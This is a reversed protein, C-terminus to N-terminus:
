LFSFRVTFTLLLLDEVKDSGDHNAQGLNACIDIMTAIVQAIRMTITSRTQFVVCTPVCTFVLSCLYFVLSCLHVCTLCLHVCTFVLPVCTFMLPVCTFVLPVCTHFVLLVCTFVLPVCTFVLLVCTFVLLFSLSEFHNWFKKEALPDAAGRFIKFILHRLNASIPNGVAYKSTKNRM